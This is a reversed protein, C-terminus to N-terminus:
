LWIFNFKQPVSALAKHVPCGNVCNELAKKDAEKFSRAPMRFTIELGAITAGNDTMTRSVDAEAGAIDLNHRAAFYGMTNLACAGLAADLLDIPSFSEDKGQDKIKSEAMVSTQTRNHVCKVTLEGLYTDTVGPM